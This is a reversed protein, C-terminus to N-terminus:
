LSRDLEKLRIDMDLRLLEPEHEAGWQDLERRLTLAEESDWADEAVLQQYRHLKGVIELKEPRSDVGLVQKLVQQSEAGLSFDVPLLRPTDAQWDIVRLSQPLVTSVVQPSHTTVIFQVNPFTRTLDPLIRQQWGPHLHLDVEDILVVGETELPDAMSPNAEAMRAAIDMVMALTTRYGDSLQEIRLQKVEKEVTWDVMIGAPHAGRPNSFEPMLRQVAARIAKLEPLEVDFSRKEKQLRSEQGELFYFYEVFRRFNTRSELAGDLAEFRSFVKGFGKKRQPVDFVGRGTGYYVFVPLQYDDGENHADVFCDVHDNLQKIGLGDPIQAATKKTKDRKETRDWCIGDYSECAIRMFPPKQGDEFVRFDLDRPNLGSVGPLRTLFPGLATAVADLVSSKGAGNRAVLVTLQQEFGIEFEAFRRFNTLTLKKIKM